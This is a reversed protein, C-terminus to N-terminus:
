ALETNSGVSKSIAIRNKWLWYITFGLIVGSVILQVVPYKSIIQEEAVRSMLVSLTNFSAHVLIPAWISNYWIYVLAALIGLITGYIGQLLNMHYIGFIVGQVMVAAALSLQKRLENFVIGRFLIEEFIPVVIGVVMLTFLFDGGILQEMIRQHDPFLKYFSTIENIMAFSYNFALGVLVVLGIINIKIASFHCHALLDAKKAKFLQNYILMSLLVSGMLMYLVHQDIIMQLKAPDINGQHTILSHFEWILGLLFTM